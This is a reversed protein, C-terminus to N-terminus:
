CYFSFACKNIEEPKHKRRPSQQSSLERTGPGTSQMLPGKGLGWCTPLSGAQPGTQRHSLM